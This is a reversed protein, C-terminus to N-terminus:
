QTTFDRAFQRFFCAYEARIDGARPFKVNSRSTSCGTRSSINNTEDAGSGSSHHQHETTHVVCLLQKEDLHRQNTGAILTLLMLTRAEM